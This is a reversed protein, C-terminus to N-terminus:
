SNKSSIQEQHIIRSKTVIYSLFTVVLWAVPTLFTFIYVFLQTFRLPFFGLLIKLMGITNEGFFMGRIFLLLLPYISIYLFVYLYRLLLDTTFTIISFNYYILFLIAGLGFLASLSTHTLRFIKTPGLKQEKGIFDFMKFLYSFYYRIFSTKLGENVYVVIKNISWIVYWICLLFLFGYVAEGPSRLYLLGSITFYLDLLFIFLFSIGGSMIILYILKSFFLYCLSRIYVESPGLSSDAFHKAKKSGSALISSVVKENRTLHEVLQAVRAFLSYQVM